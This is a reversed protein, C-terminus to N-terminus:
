RCFYYLQILNMSITTDDKLPMVFFPKMIKEELKGEFLDLNSQGDNTSEVHQYTILCTASGSAAIVIGNNVLAHMSTSSANDALPM